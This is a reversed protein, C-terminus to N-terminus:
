YEEIALLEVKFILASFPQIHVNKRMGYGLEYPIYIEWTSNVPMLTLIEAWGKIVQNVELIAPAGRNYSSDIINGDITKLEYHTKVKSTSRPIRGTGKKLIKYQVGSGTTFVGPKLKNEELFREGALKNEAFEISLRESIIVQSRNEYIKEADLYWMKPNYNCADIFGNALQKLHMNRESMNCEKGFLEIEIGKITIAKIDKGVNLGLDYAKFAATYPAPKEGYKKGSVGEKVGQVFQPKYRANIQQTTLYEDLGKTQLVGCAYFLENMDQLSLKQQAITINPTVSFFGLILLFLKQKMNKEFTRSM